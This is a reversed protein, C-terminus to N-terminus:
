KAVRYIDPIERGFGDYDLGYGIVFDNPISFGLYKIQIDKQLADPKLLCSAIEVSAPAHSAVKDLLMSMTEGSDVIDEVIVVHRGKLSENIGMLEKVTGTSAMGHYSAYKVFSIECPTSIARMLDAAFIFAGNLIGLLLPNQDKYDQGIQQGLASIREQIADALIFPEFTYDQHSITM